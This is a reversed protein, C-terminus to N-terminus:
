ILLYLTSIILVVTLITVFVEIFQINTGGGSFVARFASKLNEM